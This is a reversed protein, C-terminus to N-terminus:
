IRLSAAPILQGTNADIVKVRVRSLDPLAAGGDMMFGDNRYIPQHHV